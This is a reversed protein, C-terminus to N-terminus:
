KLPPNKGEKNLDKFAQKLRNADVESLTDFHLPLLEVLMKLIFDEANTKNFLNNKVLYDKLAPANALAARLWTNSSPFDIITNFPNFPKTNKMYAHVDKPLKPMPLTNDFFLRNFLRQNFWGKVLTAEKRDGDPDKFYFKIAEVSEIGTFYKEITKLEEKNKKYEETNIKHISLIRGAEVTCDYCLNILDSVPIMGAWQLYVEITHGMILFAGNTAVLNETDPNSTIHEYFSAM